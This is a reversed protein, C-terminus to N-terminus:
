PFSEVSLCSCTCLTIGPEYWMNYLPLALMLMHTADPRLRCCVCRSNTGARPASQRSGLGLSPITHQLPAEERVRAGLSASGPSDVVLRSLVAFDVVARGALAIGGLGPPAALLPTATAAGTDSSPLPIPHSLPGEVGVMPEYSAGDVGVVDEIKGSMDAFALFSPDV